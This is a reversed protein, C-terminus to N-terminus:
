SWKWWRRRTTWAGGANAHLHSTSASSPISLLYGIFFYSELCAFALTSFLFVLFINWM